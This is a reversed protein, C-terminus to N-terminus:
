SFCQPCPDHRVESLFIPPFTMLVNVVTIGLSVYKGLDPLSQSLIDNSYYLVANIGVCLKDTSPNPTIFCGSMGSVQQGFMAFCVIILPVRVDAPTNFLVQPVTLTATHRSTPEAPHAEPDLEDLLPDSAADLLQPDLGAAYVRVYDVCRHQKGLSTEGSGQSGAYCACQSEEAVEPERCYKPKDVAPHRIARIPLLFRCAM